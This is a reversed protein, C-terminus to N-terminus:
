NQASTDKQRDIHTQGCIKATALPQLPRAVRRAQRLRAYPWVVPTLLLNGLANHWNTRTHSIHREM